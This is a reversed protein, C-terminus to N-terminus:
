AWGLDVYGNIHLAPQSDAPPSYGDAGSSVVEQALLAAFALAIM